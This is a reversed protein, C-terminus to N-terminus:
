WGLCQSWLFIKLDWYFYTLTDRPNQVCMEGWATGKIFKDGTESNKQLRNFCFFVAEKEWSVKRQRIEWLRQLAGGGGGGGLAAAHCVATTAAPFSCLWAGPQVFGPLSREGSVCLAELVSLRKLWWAKDAKEGPKQQSRSGANVNWMIQEGSAKILTM